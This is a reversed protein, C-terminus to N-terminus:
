ENLITGSHMFGQDMSQRSQFLVIICVFALHCCPLCTGVRLQYLRPDRADNRVWCKDSGIVPGTLGM